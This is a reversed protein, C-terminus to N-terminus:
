RPYILCAYQGAKFYICEEQLARAVQALKALILPIREKGLFSVEYQRCSDLVLVQKGDMWVGFNTVTTRTFAGFNKVLFDDLDEAVTRDGLKWTSDPALKWEPLLFVAPRGLDVLRYKRSKFGSWKSKKKAM